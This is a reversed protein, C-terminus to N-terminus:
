SSSLHWKSQIQPIYGHTKRDTHTHTIPHLSMAMGAPKSSRYLWKEMKSNFFCPTEESLGRDRETVRVLFDWGDVGVWGFSHTAAESLSVQWCIMGHVWGLISTNTLIKKNKMQLAKFNSNTQKKMFSQHLILNTIVWSNYSQFQMMSVSSQWGFFRTQLITLAINQGIQEILYVNPLFCSKFVLNSM